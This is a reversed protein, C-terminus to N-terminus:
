KNILKILSDIYQWKKILQKNKITSPMVGKRKVYVMFTEAFDEMPMIRAYKSIFAKKEMKIPEYTYYEDGFTNKFDSKSILKPYYHAFSHAYEHRIVDRISGRKKWIKKSLVFSPIYIHGQEFGLIKQVPSVCHTFFGDADSLSLPSLACWYIETDALKSGEFWLGVKFLEDQVTFAASNIQKLSIISGKIM